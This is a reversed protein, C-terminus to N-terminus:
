AGNFCRPFHAKKSGRSVNTHIPMARVTTRVGSITKKKSATKLLLHATKREFYLPHAHGLNLLKVEIAHSLNTHAVNRDGPWGVRNSGDMALQISCQVHVCARLMVKDFGAWKHHVNEGCSGENLAQNGQYIADSARAGPESGEIAVAQVGCM